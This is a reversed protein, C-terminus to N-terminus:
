AVRGILKKFAEGTKYKKLQRERNWADEKLEYYECYSLIWPKGVRTSRNKGSNHAKLRKEIDATYGTYYKKTKKSCIVYVTYM